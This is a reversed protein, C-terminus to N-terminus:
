GHDVERRVKYTSPQYFDLKSNIAQAGSRRINVGENIQRSMPDTFSKLVKRTFDPLEGNHPVTRHLWGEGGVASTYLARSPDVFVTQM